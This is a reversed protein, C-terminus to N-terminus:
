LECLMLSCRHVFGLPLLERCQRQVRRDLQGACRQRLQLRGSCRVLLRDCKAVGHAHKERLGDREDARCTLAEHALALMMGSKAIKSRAITRMSGATGRGSTWFSESRYMAPGSSFSARPATRRM